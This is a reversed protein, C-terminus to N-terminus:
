QDQLMYRDAAHSVCAWCIYVTLGITDGDCTFAPSIYKPKEPRFNIRQTKPPVASKWVTTRTSLIYMPYSWKTHYPIILGVFLKDGQLEHQGPQGLLLLRVQVHSAVVVQAECLVISETGLLCDLLDGLSSSSNWGGALFKTLPSGLLWVIKTQLFGNGGM